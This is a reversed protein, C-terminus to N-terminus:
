RSHVVTMPVALFLTCVYQLISITSLYLVYIKMRVM